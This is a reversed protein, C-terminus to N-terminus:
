MNEVPLEQVVPTRVPQDDADPLEGSPEDQQQALKTELEELARRLQGDTSHLRIRTVIGWVICFSATEERGVRSLM